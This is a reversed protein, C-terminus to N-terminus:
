ENPVYNRIYHDAMFYITGTLTLDVKVQYVLGGKLVFENVSREGAGIVTNGPGTGGPIFKTLIAVTGSTNITPKAYVVANSTISALENRNINSLLVGGTTTWLPGRSVVCTAESGTAIQFITHVGATNTVAALSMVFSSSNTNSVVGSNVFHFGEHIMDHAPDIAHIAGYRDIKARSLM